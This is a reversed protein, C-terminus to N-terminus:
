SEDENFARLVRVRSPDLDYSDSPSWFCRFSCCLLVFESYIVVELPRYGGKLVNPLVVRVKGPHPFFFFSVLLM